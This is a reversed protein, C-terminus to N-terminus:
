LLFSYLVYLLTSNLSSSYLLITDKNKPSNLNQELTAKVGIVM